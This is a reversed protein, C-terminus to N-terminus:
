HLNKEKDAQKSDLQAPAIFMALLNLLLLTIFVLLKRREKERAKFPTLTILRLGYNLEIKEQSWAFLFFVYKDNIYVYINIVYFYFCSVCVRITCMYFTRAFLRLDNEILLLVDRTKHVLISKNLNLASEIQLMCWLAVLKTNNSLHFSTSLVWFSQPPFSCFKIIFCFTMLNKLKLLKLKNHVNLHICAFLTRKRSSTM